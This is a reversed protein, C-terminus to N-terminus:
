PLRQLMKEATMRVRPPNGQDQMIQQLFPKVDFGQKIWTEVTGDTLAAAIREPPMTKVAPSQTIDGLAPNPPRQTPTRPQGPRGAQGFGAGQLRAIAESKADMPGAPGAAQGGGGMRRDIERQITDFEPTGQSYNGQNKILLDIMPDAYERGPVPEMKSKGFAAYEADKRAEIRIEAAQQPSPPGGTKDQFDATRRAILTNTMEELSRQLGGAGGARGGGGGGAGAGRAMREYNKAQMEWLKERGGLEREELGFRRQEMENKLQQQTYKNQIDGARGVAGMGMQMAEPFKKGGSLATGMQLLMIAAMPNDSLEQLATRWGATRQQIAPDQQPAAGPMPAAPQAAPAAAQGTLIGGLQPQQLEAFPNFGDM